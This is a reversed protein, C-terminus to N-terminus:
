ATSNGHPVTMKIESFGLEMGDWSWGMVACLVAFLRPLPLSALRVGVWCFLAGLSPSGPQSYDPPSLRSAGWASHLPLRRGPPFPRTRRLAGLVSPFTLFHPRPRTAGAWASPGLRRPPGLARRARGVHATPSLGLGSRPRRRRPWRAPGPSVRAPRAAPGAAAAEEEEEESSLIAAVPLASRRPGGGRGRGGAGGRRM